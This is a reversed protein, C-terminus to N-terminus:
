FPVLTSVRTKVKVRRGVGEKIEEEHYLLCVGVILLSVFLGGLTKRKGWGKRTEDMCGSGAKAAEVGSGM